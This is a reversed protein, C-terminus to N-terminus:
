TSCMEEAIKLFRVSGRRGFAAKAEALSDAVGGTLAKDATPRAIPAKSVGKLTPADDCPRRAAFLPNYLRLITQGAHDSDASVGPPKGPSTSLAEPIRRDVSSSSLPM